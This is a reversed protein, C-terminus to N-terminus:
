PMRVLGVFAPGSVDVTKGLPTLNGSVADVKFGVVENADQNGAFLYDGDPSLGFSRPRDGGTMVNAIRTLSGDSDNVSFVVISDFIRTSGYVFKGSPHVFIEAGSVGSADQGPPLASVTGKATLTGSTQDYAFTTVTIATESM